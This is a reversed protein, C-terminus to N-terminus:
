CAEGVDGALEQGQTGARHPRDFSVPLRAGPHAAGPFDLLVAGATGTRREPRHVASDELIHFHCEHSNWHLPFTAGAPGAKNKEITVSFGPPGIGGPVARAHPTGELVLAPASPAGSLVLRLPAATADPGASQRLLFVPRGSEQARRHLRQTERLGMLAAKGRMDLVTAAIGRTRAAEEAVWLADALKAPEVLLLRAPDFGAAALGRGHPVGGESFAGPAGIWIVPDASWFAPTGCLSFLAALFGSALGADRAERAHFETLAALPIGGGLTRDCAQAGTKLVADCVGADAAQWGEGGGGFRAPTEEISAIQRRLSLLTARATARAAAM